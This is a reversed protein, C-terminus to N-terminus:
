FSPPPSKPPKLINEQRWKPSKARLLKNEQRWASAIQRGIFKMEQRWDPSCPVGLIWNIDGAPPDIENKRWDPSIEGSNRAAPHTRDRLNRPSDLSPVEFSELRDFVSGAIVMELLRSVALIEALVAAVQNHERSVMPHRSHLLSHSLVLLGEWFYVIGPSGGLGGPLFKLDSAPPACCSSATALSPELSASAASSLKM